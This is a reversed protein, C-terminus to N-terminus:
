LGNDNVLVRPMGFRTIINKWLFKIIQKRALCVLPEAKIRKTFYDVAIVLFKM